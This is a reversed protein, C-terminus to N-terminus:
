VVFAGTSSKAEDIIKMTSKVVKDKQRRLSNSINTMESEIINLYDPLHKEQIVDFHYTQIDKSKSSYFEKCFHIYRVKKLSLRENNLSASYLDKQLIVCLYYLNVDVYSNKNLALASQLPSISDYDNESIQYNVANILRNFTNNEEDTHFAMWVKPDSKKMQFTCWQTAVSGTCYHHYRDIGAFEGLSVWGTGDWFEIPIGSVKVEYKNQYMNPLDNIFFVVPQANNKCECMLQLTLYNIGDKEKFVKVSKTADIDYEGSKESDSYPLAANAQVTYEKQRLVDEVRQELLYGSKMIAPKMDKTSIRNDNVKLLNNAKINIPTNM